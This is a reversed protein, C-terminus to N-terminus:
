SAESVVAEAMEPVQVKSGIFAYYTIFVYCVLVVLMAVAMSRTLQFLLGMIPTAVAGGIIAMIIM